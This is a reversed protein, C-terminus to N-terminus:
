RLLGHTFWGAIFGLIACIINVIIPYKIHILKEHKKNTNLLELQYKGENTLSYSKPVLGYEDSYDLNNVILKKKGLRLLYDYDKPKALVRKKNSARKLLEIEKNSLDM